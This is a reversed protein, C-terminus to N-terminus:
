TVLEKPATQDYGLAVEALPNRLYQLAQLALTVASAVINRDAFLSGDHDNVLQFPGSAIPRHGPVTFYAYRSVGRLFDGIM